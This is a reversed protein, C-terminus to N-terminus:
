EIVEDARAILMPPLTLGVAKATKLNIVLEFKVPFQVPLDSPKEGRLVRDVYGAARQWNDVIDNGYSILGGADAFVRNYYIGPLRYRNVLPAIDLAQSTIFGGPVPIVGSHAERAQEAIFSGLEVLDRIPAARIELALKAAAAKFPALYSEFYPSTPRHYPIAARAVGPAVEKLLEIWKGAMSTDLNVFGTANGGPKSLSAVFGQGVPDVLNAFVIPITRTEGLLAATTPSGASLIVDPQLAVIEKASQRIRESTPGSWRADIHINHGEIWGLKRLAERFAADWARAPRDSELYQMVTGILRMRDAQQARAALPWAAAGGLLTIFERRKM